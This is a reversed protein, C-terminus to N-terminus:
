FHQTYFQGFEPFAELMQQHWSLVVAGGMACCVECLSRSRAARESFQWGGRNAAM